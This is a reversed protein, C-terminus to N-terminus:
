LPKELQFQFLTIQERQEGAQLIPSYFGAQNIANPALQTEVCFGSSPAFPTGLFAGSYFQYGPSNGSVSLTVGSSSSAATLMPKIIDHDDINFHHDCAGDFEPYPSHEISYSFPEAIPVIKGTPINDQDVEMYSDARIEFHHDSIDKSSEKTANTANSLNLYVHNTPNIYCDTDCVSRYKITLCGKSVHYTAWTTLLGALGITTMDFDLRYCIQNHSHSEVQWTQKDFGMGGSHLTNDGENCPMQMAIDNINIRGGSIRNSIPGISAGLYFPDDLYDDASEYSLTLENGHFNINCIRAGYDLLSVTCGLGDSISANLM